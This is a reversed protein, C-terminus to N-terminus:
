DPEQTCSELDADFSFKFKKTKAGVDSADLYIEFVRVSLQDAIDYDQYTPTM